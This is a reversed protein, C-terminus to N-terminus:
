DHNVPAKRELRNLFGGRYICKSRWPFSKQLLTQKYGMVICRPNIHIHYCIHLGYVICQPNKYIKYCIRSSM